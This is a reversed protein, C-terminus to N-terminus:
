GSYCNGAQKRIMRAGQRAVALLRNPSRALLPTLTHTNITIPWM